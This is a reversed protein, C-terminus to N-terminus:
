RSSSRETELDLPLTIKQGVLLYDWDAVEPNAAKVMQLLRANIYGYERHLLRSLDDGKQVVAVHPTLEDLSLDITQQTSSPTPQDPPISPSTTLESEVESDSTLAAPQEPTANDNRLSMALESRVENDSTLVAPQEPTVNGNRGPQLNVPSPSLRQKFNFYHDMTIGGVVGVCLAFLALFVAGAFIQPRSWPVGEVAQRVLQGSVIPTQWDSEIERSSAIPPRWTELGLISSGSMQGGDGSLDIDSEPGAVDTSFFKARDSDSFFYDSQKGGVSDGNLSTQDEVWAVHAPENKSSRVQAFSELEDLLEELSAGVPHVPLWRRNTPAVVQAVSAMTALGPEAGFMEPESSVFRPRKGLATRFKGHPKSNPLASSIYTPVEDPAPEIVSSTETGVQITPLCEEEEHLDPASRSEIEETADSSRIVPEDLAESSHSAQVVVTEPRQTEQAAAAGEAPADPVAESHLIDVRAEAPSPGLLEVDPWVDASEIMEAAIIEQRTESIAEMPGSSPTVVPKLEPEPPPTPLVDSVSPISIVTEEKRQSTGAVPLESEWSSLPKTERVAEVLDLEQAAEKVMALEARYKNEAYAVLLANHCVANILRPIGKSAEFIAALVPRSFLTHLPKTWGTFRLRHEVYEGTEFLTLPRLNMNVTIRQKLQALEPLALKTKLQPQGVLIVQLLKAQPVEFNTLLRIDEMERVSLNQAEDFILVVNSGARWEEALLDQLQRTLSLVTGNQPKAGLSELIFQLRQKFSLDTGPLFVTRLSSDLRELLAYLLTTKGTGPEGTLCMFGRRMKVGYMLAAFAEHHAPGLYLFRPDPSVGFPDEQFGFHETYM